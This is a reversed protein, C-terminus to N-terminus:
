SSPVEEVKAQPPNIWVADPLQPPTPQGKVFREPHQAYAGALVVQRKATLDEALGYHVTAPTM